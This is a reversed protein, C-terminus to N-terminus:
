DQLILSYERFRNSRTPLNQLIPRRRSWCIPADDVSQEHLPRTPAVGFSGDYLRKWFFEVGTLGGNQKRTNEHAQANRSIDNGTGREIFLSSHGISRDVVDVKTFLM